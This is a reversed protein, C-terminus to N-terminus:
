KIKLNEVPKEGYSFRVLSMIKECITRTPKLGRVDFSDLEYEKVIDIQHNQLMMQGIFTIIPRSEFPESNGFWSAEMIIAERIQGFSGEFNRPYQHATKRIMGMKHTIGTMEIEPLEENVIKSIKRIKRKLQNDTEEGTQMVVLDIDESFRKIIDFCKSLATGGKFVIEEGIENKFIIKLAYTLWYDKEVYIEPIDMQQAVATVAEKFLEKNQHLKM